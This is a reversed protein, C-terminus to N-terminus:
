HAKLRLMSNQELRNIVVGPQLDEGQTRGGRVYVREREQLDRRGPSAERPVQEPATGASIKEQLFAALVRLHVADSPM